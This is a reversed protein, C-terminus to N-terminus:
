HYLLAGLFESAVHNFAASRELPSLHGAQELIEVRSKPISAAMSRLVDPPTVSDEAGGVVLTPVDITGLLL